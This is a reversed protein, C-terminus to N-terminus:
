RFGVVTLTEQLDRRAVSTVEVAQAQAAASRAAAESASKKTCGAALGLM